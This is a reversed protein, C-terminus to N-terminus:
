AKSNKNKRNVNSYTWVKNKKMRESRVESQSKAISSIKNKVEATM